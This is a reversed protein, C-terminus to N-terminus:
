GAQGQGGHSNNHIFVSAQGTEKMRRRFESLLEGSLPHTGQTTAQTPAVYPCVPDDADMGAQIRLYQRQLAERVRIDSLEHYRDAFTKGLYFFGGAIVLALIVNLLMM